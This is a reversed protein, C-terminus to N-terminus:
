IDQFLQAYYKKFFNSCFCSSVLLYWRMTECTECVELPVKIESFKLTKENINFEENLNSTINDIIEYNTMNLFDKKIISGLSINEFASMPNRTIKTPNIRFANIMLVSIVRKKLNHDYFKENELLSVIGGSIMVVSILIDIWSCILKLKKIWELVNKRKNSIIPDIKFKNKNVSENNMSNQMSQNDSIFSCSNEDDFCDEPNFNNIKRMKRQIDIDHNLLKKNHYNSQDKKEDFQYGKRGVLFAFM